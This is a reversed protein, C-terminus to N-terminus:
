EAAEVIEADLTVEAPQRVVECGWRSEQERRRAAREAEEAKTEAGSRRGAQLRSSSADLAAQLRERSGTIIDEGMQVVKNNITVQQLTQNFTQGPVLERCIEARLKALKIAQNGHVVSPREAGVHMAFNWVNFHATLMATVVDLTRLDADAVEALLDSIKAYPGAAVQTKYSEPVHDKMTWHRQLSSYPVGYKTAVAKMPVGRACAFNIEEVQPHQCTRCANSASLNRRGRPHGPPRGTKVYAKGAKRGRKVPTPLTM